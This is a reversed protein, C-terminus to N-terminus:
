KRSLELLEDLAAGYRHVWLSMHGEDPLLHARAGPVNAALWKGHALPVLLDQGGHWLSVPVRIDAPDFGWDSWMAWDDDYWGWLCDGALRENEILAAQLLSSRFADVDVPGVLGELQEVFDAESPSDGPKPLSSELFARLAAPGEELAKFEEINGESMGDTWNLGEAGRPALAAMSLAALVREPLLAACALACNAGSSLGTVYFQDLGLDDAVAEVDAAVDAFARGPQRDSGEYGPRSCCIHRLGREAGAEVYGDWISRSGPTGMHIFVPLGDEPGSLQAWLVRGDRATFSREVRRV